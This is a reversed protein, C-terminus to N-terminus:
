FSIGKYYHFSDEDYESEAEILKMLTEGDDFAIVKSVEDKTLTNLINSENDWDRDEM